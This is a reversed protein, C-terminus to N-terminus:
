VRFLSQYEPVMYVFDGGIALAQVSLDILKVIVFDAFYGRQIKGIGPMFMLDQAAETYLKIGTEMDIRERPIPHMMAAKIGLAPSPPMADSGFAFKVGADMLSKIPNNRYMREKGLRKEYMGNPVGWRVAFNPQISIRINLSAAREIQGKTPFEFHEIRHHLMNKNGDTGHSIGDIAAEIARDGIAHIIVQLGAEEALRVIDAIRKADFFLKGFNEPDDNYPDFFAATRAGVSGDAFLKIGGIRLYPDGFGSQLGLRKIADFLELYYSFYVRIKLQRKRLAEQYVRMFEWKGFESVTGIGLSWFEKQAASLAAHLEKDTPPFYDSINLPVAEVLLGGRRDVGPTEIPIMSLAKSNAVGIHGCIRRLVVPRAPAVQDLEQRTPARGEPWFSEDYGEIIVVESLDYDRAAQEVIELADKLTRAKDLKPRVLHLGRGIMHTHTDVFAPLLAYGPGISIYSGFGPVREKTVSAIKDGIIRITVNEDFKGDIFAKHAYIIHQKM